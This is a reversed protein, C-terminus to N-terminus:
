FKYRAGVLFERGTVHYVVSSNRARSIFQDNPQNTLNVGELTLDMKPSIKYSFSMDVNTSKNKGEVDNNNQGPVRTVFSSRQSASLRASFTGDDYYFSLNWSRPSLNVLDETVTASGVATTSLVYEMKSKVQTYNALIGFNSLKGPLFTMQQNYEFTVGKTEFTGDGNQDADGGSGGASNM